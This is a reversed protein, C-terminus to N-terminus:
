RLVSLRDQLESYHFLRNYEVLGSLAWSSVRAGTEELIAVPNLGGIMIAGALGSSVPVELLAQGARGIEMFGGLGIANLKRALDIVRERSDAPIERFSAGIRGNGTTVAGVYNTMGGRIFVVLPDISTGDYTIIEAFRVAKGSKMELLGGFRSHVPIGYKQLVGNLTISCVTGIGIMGKPVVVDGCREGPALLTMLHGMALGKEFVKAMMDACKAVFKPDALTMNVVVTGARTSLDFDMRYTMQAIKASLFGVREVTRSAALEHAGLETIVRGRRGDSRTLGEADLQQLDLRVTRESVDQGEAELERVLQASSMARDSSRLLGLINLQRRRAKDKM